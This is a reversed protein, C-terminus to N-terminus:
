RQLKVKSTRVLDLRHHKMELHFTQQPLFNGLSALHTKLNHSVDAKILCIWLVVMEIVTLLQKNSAHKKSYKLNSLGALNSKETSVLRM